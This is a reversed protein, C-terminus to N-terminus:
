AASMDMWMLELVHGDTDEVARNYMFGLDLPARRDATGGAAVAAEAVADVDARSDLSIALLVETTKHADAVPKPTYTAFHDTALLHFTITESWVMSASSDDSFQENKTCGIALYFRTAAALNVVPLNVFIMKPM